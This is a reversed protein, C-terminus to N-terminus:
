GRNGRLSNPSPGLQVLAADRDSSASIVALRFQVRATSRAGPSHAASLAVVLQAQASQIAAEFKRNISKEANRYAKPTLSVNHMGSLQTTTTGDNSGAYATSPIMAGLTATLALAMGVRAVWTKM